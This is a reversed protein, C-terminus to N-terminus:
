AFLADYQSDGIIPNDHVHYAIDAARIEALLQTMRERAFDTM